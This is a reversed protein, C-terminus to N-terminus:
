IESLIAEIADYVAGAEGAPQILVSALMWRSSEVGDLTRAHRTLTDKVVSTTGAGRECGIGILTDLGSYECRADLEWSLEDVDNLLLNSMHEDYVLGAIVLRHASHHWEATTVDFDAMQRMLTGCAAYRRGEVVMFAPDRLFFRRALFANRRGTAHQGKVRTEAEGSTIRALGELDVGAVDWFTIVQESWTGDCTPHEGLLVGNAEGSLWRRAEASPEAIIVCTDDAAHRSM